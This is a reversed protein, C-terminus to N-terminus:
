GRGGAELLSKTYPHEPSTIIENAPGFELANGNKLVLVHDEGGRGVLGMDHTAVIFRPSYKRIAEIVSWRRSPDIGGTPEDLLAVTPWAALVAAINVRRLMGGSCEHPYRELVEIPLGIHELIGKAREEGDSALSTVDQWQFRLRRYPSFATSSEQVALLAGPLQHGRRDKSRRRRSARSSDEPSRREAEGSRLDDALEPPRGIWGSIVHRSIGAIAELFSSKGSGSEGVIFLSAGDPLTFSLPKLLMMGGKTVVTLHHCRIM